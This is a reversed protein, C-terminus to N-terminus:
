RKCTPRWTRRARRPMSSCWREPKTHASAVIEAIPNITGLVNSVATVAVLKTRESLLVDLQDLQLLGDDTIPIARIACGTREALQQWPVLNSHHEMVTVLIEDGARVNADGWSRAVLNIAATTGSTFIIEHTSRANSSRGRRKAHGKTFSTLRNPSGIFAATSM